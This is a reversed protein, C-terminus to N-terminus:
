KDISKLNHLAANLRLIIMRTQIDLNQPKNAFLDIAAPIERAMEFQTLAINKLAINSDNYASM